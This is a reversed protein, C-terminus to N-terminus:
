QPDIIKTTFDIEIDMHEGKIVRALIDDNRETWTLGVSLILSIARRIRLPQMRFGLYFLKDGIYAVPSMVGVVM